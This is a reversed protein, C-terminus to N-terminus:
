AMIADAIDPGIYGWGGRAVDACRQREALIARAVFYTTFTDSGANEFGNETMVRRADIMVDEPMESM